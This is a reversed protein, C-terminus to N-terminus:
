RIIVCSFLWQSHPKPLSAIEVFADSQKGNALGNDLPSVSLSSLTMRKIFLPLQLFYFALSGLYVL